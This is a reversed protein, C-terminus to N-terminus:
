DRDSRDHGNREKGTEQRQYLVGLLFGACAKKSESGGRTDPFVPRCFGKGTKKIVRYGGFDHEIALGAKAAANRLHEVTLDRRMIKLPQPDRAASQNDDAAAFSM